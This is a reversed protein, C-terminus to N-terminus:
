SVESADRRIGLALYVPWFSLVDVMGLCLLLACVLIANDHALFGRTNSSRVLFYINSILLAVGFLGAEFIIRFFNNFVPIAFDEGKSAWQDADPSMFFWDPYFKDLIGGALGYGNGIIPSELFGNWAAVWSGVRTITSTDVGFETYQWRMGEMQLVSYAFIGVYMLAALVFVPLWKRYYIFHVAMLILIGAIINKSVAAASMLAILALLVYNIKASRTKDILVISSFFIVVVAMYSPENSFGRIRGASIDFDDRYNLYEASAQLVTLFPEIGFMGGLVEIGQYALLVILAWFSARSLHAFQFGSLRALCLALSLGAYVMLSGAMSAYVKVLTNSKDMGPLIFIMQLVLLLGLIVFSSGVLGFDRLYKKRNWVPNALTLVAIFPFLYNFLSGLSHHINVAPLHVYSFSLGFYLSLLIIGLSRGASSAPAVVAESM